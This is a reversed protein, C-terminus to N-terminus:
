NIWLTLFMSGIQPSQSKKEWFVVVNFLIFRWYSVNVRNSPIAVSLRTSTLTAWGSLTLFMSGIQPSQSWQRHPCALQWCWWCPLFCQGSKLPNRRQGIEYTSAWRQSLMPLFCQGSKLPNRSWHKLRNKALYEVYSVNVRNSPIAVEAATGTCTERQWANWYSVNVRNSPIAVGTCTERQWANWAIYSVNVRNSPIAVFVLFEQVVQSLNPNNYSVNVRNSPIAVRELYCERKKRRGHVTLFMSGIQPSQSSVAPSEKQGLLHTLFMSGIQPSQSREWKRGGEKRMKRLLFCQGSKLPNRCEEILQCRDPLNALTLFM